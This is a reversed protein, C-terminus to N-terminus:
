EDNSKFSFNADSIQKIRKEYEQVIKQFTEKQPVDEKLAHEASEQIPTYIYQLIRENNHSSNTLIRTFNNELEFICPFLKNAKDLCCLRHIM